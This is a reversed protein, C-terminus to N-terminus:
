LYIYINRKYTSSNVPIYQPMVIIVYLWYRHENTKFKILHMYAYQVYSLYEYEM